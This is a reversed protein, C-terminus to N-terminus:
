NLATSRFLGVRISAVVWKDTMHYTPTLTGPRTNMPSAATAKHWMAIATPIETSVKEKGVKGLVFDKLVENSEITGFITEDVAAIHHGTIVDGGSASDDVSIAIRYLGKVVGVTLTAEHGELEDIDDGFINDCFDEIREPDPKGDSNLCNVQWTQDGMFVEFLKM